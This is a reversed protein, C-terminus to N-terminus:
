ETRLEGNEQPKFAPFIMITAAPLDGDVIISPKKPPFKTSYHALKEMKVAPTEMLILLVASSAMRIKM